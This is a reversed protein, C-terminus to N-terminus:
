TDRRAFLKLLQAYLDDELPINMTECLNEDTDAFEVFDADEIVALPTCETAEGMCLVAAAALGDAINVTTKTFPRGFLDPQGIKSDVPLFGSCAVCRGTVGRRLPNPVSDTIIVGVNQLGYESMLRQRCFDASRQPNEPLLVYVGDANSEDIGSSPMLIGNKVTLRVDYKNQTKPLLYEAEQEILADKDQDLGTFRGECLAVAKSTIVAVTNEKLRGDFYKLLSELSVGGDPKILETKITTVIM